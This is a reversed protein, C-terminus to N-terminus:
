HEGDGKAQWHDDGGECAARPGGSTFMSSAGSEIDSQESQDYESSESM